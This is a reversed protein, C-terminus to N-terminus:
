MPNRRLLYIFVPAGVLATVAGVPLEGGAADVAPLLIRAATDCVLLFLGGVIISVPLLVRHDAGVVRRVIHPVVLGVFGIAGCFSVSLGVVFSGALYAIVRVRSVDLGLSAAEDDGLSLANLTDGTFMSCLAIAVLLFGSGYGVVSSTSSLDGLTWQIATRLQPGAFHLLMFIAAAAIAGVMVGGLLMSESRVGWAGRAISLVTLVVAAGGAFSLTTVGLPGIGLIFGIIAGVACGNSIGLIYPEALPNRLLAQFLVGSAALAAGVSIALVIRPLRLDFLIVHVPDTAPASLARILEPPTIPSTGLWLAAIATVLLALSALATAVGVSRRTARRLTRLRAESPTAAM